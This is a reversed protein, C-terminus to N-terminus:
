GLRRGLDDRGNWGALLGYVLATALPQAVLVWLSELQPAKVLVDGIKPTGTVAYHGNAFAVGMSTGLWGALLGGLVAAIMIVPGRRERLLWVVVGTAIGAAFALLLYIGLDDFRHWSELQLPVLQNGDYVRVREPPAILSWLWGLPIGVLGVLSLVSVAPLLDAKVIVRPQPRPLSFVLRSLGPEESRGDAGVTGEAM